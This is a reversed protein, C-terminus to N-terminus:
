YQLHRSCIIINGYFFVCCIVPPVLILFTLIGLWAQWTVPEVYAMWNRRGDPNAIFAQVFSEILVPLFDVVESRAATITFDAAAIDIKNDILKGLLSIEYYTSTLHGVSTLEIWELDWINLYEYLNGIMGSWTGNELSGWGYEKRVTYTFNLNDALIGWVTGSIGQFCKKNTCNDKIDTVFNPYYVSAARITM